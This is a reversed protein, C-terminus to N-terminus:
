VIFTWFHYRQCFIWHIKEHYSERLFFFDFNNLWTHLRMRPLSDTDVISQIELCLVTVTEYALARTYAHTNSHASTQIFPLPLRVSVEWFCHILISLPQQFVAVSHEICFFFFFFFFVGFQQAVGIHIHLSQILCWRYRSFSSSTNM